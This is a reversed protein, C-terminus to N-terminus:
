AGDVVRFYLFNVREVCITTVVVNTDILPTM